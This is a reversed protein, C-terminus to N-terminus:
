TIQHSGINSLNLLYVTARPKLHHSAFQVTALSQHQMKEALEIETGHSWCTEVYVHGQM